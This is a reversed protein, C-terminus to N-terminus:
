TMLHEVMKCLAIVMEDEYVFDTAINEKNFFICQNM